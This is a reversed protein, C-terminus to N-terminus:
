PKNKGQSRFLAAANITGNVPEGDAFQFGYQVPIGCNVFRVNKLTLIQSEAVVGTEFNEITINELLIHRCNASLQFAPGGYASDAYVRLPETALLVLTDKDIYLLDTLQVNEGYLRDLLLTDGTAANIADQIKQGAATQDMLVAPSSDPSETKRDRLLAWILAALLLLCLVSLLVLPLNSRRKRPNAPLLTVGTEPESKQQPKKKVAKPKTAKQKLPATNNYVLVVTINDKGGANNAETILQEAKQELPAASSLISAIGRSDVLDSLGDSCLLLLDSPLFPSEGAEIYDSAAEIKGGFGLAKNIENRKPHQMAEQESIRGNDELYGVFSHDNTLKVLTEDRLLYLRTDGVHAYFLKHAEIDTVVLTLVCAMNKLHPKHLKEEEITDNAAVVAEKMMTLIDGSPVSFYDLIAKKATAAAVEGGEYGGVGDIVCAMLYRNNLVPQAIFADENNDRMRGTDTRGFINGAM